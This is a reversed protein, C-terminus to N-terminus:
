RTFDFLTATFVGRERKKFIVHWNGNYRILRPVLLEGFHQMEVEMHVNFDYVGADYSLDYKRAVIEMSKSNFWTTMENIVIDEKESPSLDERAKITFVYCLQGQYETMDIVFDYRQSVEDDFLAIKGGIFPIGPIKRGPNFFLMKLQEKHKSLGSKGRTDFETGKVINNDGCITGRTFFLGAYMECTYYNWQHDGEYIDGTKQEELIEMSRCGEKVIQRTRSQLSAKEAEKKDLMRIDNLSTYGLVYLNKFAKYFTTDNKVREIFGPVDLHNVIVVEKLTVVKRGVMLLSDQQAKAPLHILAMILALISYRFYIFRAM